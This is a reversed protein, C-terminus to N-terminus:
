ASARGNAARRAGSLLRLHAVAPHDPLSEGREVAQIFQRRSMKLHRRALRDVLADLDRRSM